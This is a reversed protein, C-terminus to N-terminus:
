PPFEIGPLHPHSPHHAPTEHTINPIQYNLLLTIKTVFRLDGACGLYDLLGPPNAQWYAIRYALRYTNRRHFAFEKDSIAGEKWNKVASKGLDIHFWSGHAQPHYYYLDLIGTNAFGIAAQNNARLIYGNRTTHRTVNNSFRIGETYRPQFTARYWGFFAAHEALDRATAKREPFDSLRKASM